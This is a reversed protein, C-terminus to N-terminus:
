IMNPLSPFIKLLYRRENFRFMMRDIYEVKGDQISLYFLNTTHNLEFIHNSLEFVIFNIFHPLYEESDYQYSYRYTLSCNARYNFKIGRYYYNPNFKELCVLFNDNQNLEKGKIKLNVIINIGNNETIM